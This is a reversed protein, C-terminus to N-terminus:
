PLGRVKINNQKILADGGLSLIHVEDPSSVETKLIIAVQQQLRMAFHKVEQHCQRSFSSPLSGDAVRLLYEFLLPRVDLNPLRDTSDQLFQSAVRIQPRNRKSSHDVRLHLVFGAGSTFRIGEVTTVRGTPNDSKGITGAAWLTESDDAMMGTIARNFGKVMQRTVQNVIAGKIAGKQREAVCRHFDLYQAGKHFVTLFWESGLEDAAEYPLQFFLRRRQSAIAHSFNKLDLFERPDNLYQIRLNRFLAEGYIPDARELREVIHAPRQRLLLEDFQNTTEYGIGFAELTSFIVYRSRMDESLNVGVVNNYPNTRHYQRERARESATECSLLPTDRSKSDGLIVNVVLTLIQRLPVHQDNALAIAIVDRLRSRFVRSEPSDDVGKLLRRNIRIPCSEEQGGFLPCQACGVEWMPHALVAEIVEDVVAPQTRRSLNYLRVKLFGEPDDEDEQRLM